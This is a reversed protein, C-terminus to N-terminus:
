GADGFVCDLDDDAVVGEDDKDFCKKRVVAAIGNEGNAEVEFIDLDVTVDLLEEVITVVEEGSCGGCGWCFNNVIRLNVVVLLLLVQLLVVPMESPSFFGAATTVGIRTDLPVVPCFRVDV